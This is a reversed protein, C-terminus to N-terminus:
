VDVIFLGQWGMPTRKVEACHYTVAKIETKIPHRHPNYIEGLCHAVLNFINSEDVSEIVNVELNRAPIDKVLFGGGNFLYLLERLYNIWIDTIDTGDVRIIREGEGELTARDTLLDFLALGAQAFLDALTAGHVEIGIDATHDLIRYGM